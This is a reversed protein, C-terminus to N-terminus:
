RQLFFGAAYFGLALTGLLWALRRSAQRRRALDQPSLVTATNTEDDKHWAQNM